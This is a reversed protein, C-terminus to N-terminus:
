SKPDTDPLQRFYGLKHGPYCEPHLIAAIDTLIEDLKDGSQTYHPMPSYVRGDKLPKVGALLPNARALAAKSSAGSKPTRYTFFIEADQGSYLFRELSIEVCSKGFIDEFQYDSLALEVLEGVWANGPEVLVRKEYIDGWMVKPKYSAKATNKRIQELANSVREFYQNAQAQKNFFPALFRIFKMRANLCMAVPTTTIVCAVGMEDLMPLISMDWTLVLEPRVKRLQEFDVANYDGLFTIANEEMGRVVEPIFWDEKEALVGKLSEIVGLAKLIAIDFFGYAVVREVPTRVVQFKEYGSPIDADRPVLILTRGAGDRVETCGNALPNVAFSGISMFSLEKTEKEKVPSESDSSCGTFFAMALGIFILLVPKVNVRM